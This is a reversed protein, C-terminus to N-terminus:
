SLEEQKEVMPKFFFFLRVPDLLHDQDQRGTLTHIGHLINPLNGDETILELELFSASDESVARASRIFKILDRERPGTKTQMVVPFSGEELVRNLGQVCIEAQESDMTFRYLAGAVTANISPAKLEARDVQRIMVAEPLVGRLVELLRDPELDSTLRVEMQESMGRFGVPLAPGFSLLPQPNFGESYAVPLEARRMTRRFLNLMDIQSLFPDRKEYTVRYRYRERTESM